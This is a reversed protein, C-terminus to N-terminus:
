LCLVYANTIALQINQSQINCGCRTGNVRSADYKEFYIDRFTACTNNVHATSIECVTYLSSLPKELGTFMYHWQISYKYAINM